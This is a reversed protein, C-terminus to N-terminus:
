SLLYMKYIYDARMRVRIIKCFTSLYILIHIFLPQYGDTVGVTYFKSFPTVIEFSSFAEIFMGLMRRRFCEARLSKTHLVRILHIYFPACYNIKPVQFDMLKISNLMHFTVINFSFAVYKEGGVTDRFVQFIM